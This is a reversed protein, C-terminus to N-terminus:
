TNSRLNRVNSHKGLSRHLKDMGDVRELEDDVEVASDYGCQDILWSTETIGFSTIESIIRDTLVVDSVKGCMSARFRKAVM